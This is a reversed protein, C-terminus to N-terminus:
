MPGALPADPTAGLPRRLIGGRRARARGGGPGVMGHFGPRTSAVLPSCQGGSPRRGSAASPAACMRSTNPRMPKVSLHPPPPPPPPLTARTQAQCDPAAATVPATQQRATNGSRMVRRGRAAERGACPSPRATPRGCARGSGGRGCRSRPHSARRPPPPPAGRGAPTKPNAPRPGGGGGGAHRSPGQRGGGASLHVWDPGVGARARRQGARWGRGRGPGQVLAGVVKLLRYKWTPNRRPAVMLPCCGPRPWWGSLLLLLLLLRGSGV